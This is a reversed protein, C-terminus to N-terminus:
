TSASSRAWSRQSSAIASARSNNVDSRSLPSSTFLAYAPSCRTAQRSPAPRMASAAASAAEAQVNARWISRGNIPAVTASSAARTRVTDVPTTRNAQPSGPVWGAPLAPPFPSDHLGHRGAWAGGIALNLLIHAPGGLTGDAYNWAYSRSYIKKGDVFMSVRD